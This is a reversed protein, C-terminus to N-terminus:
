GAAHRVALAKARRRPYDPRHVRARCQEAALREARDIRLQRLAAEAVEPNRSAAHEDDTLHEELGPALLTGRDRLPLGAVAHRDGRPSDLVPASDRGDSGYCGGNESM